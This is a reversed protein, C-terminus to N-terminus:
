RWDDDVSTPVFSSANAVDDPVKGTPMAKLQDKMAQLEALEDAVYQRKLEIEADQSEYNDAGAQEFDLEPDNALKWQLDQM